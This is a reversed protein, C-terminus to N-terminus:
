NNLIYCAIGCGVICSTSIIGICNVIPTSLCAGLCAVDVPPPLLMCMACLAQPLGPIFCMPVFYTICAAVCQQFDLLGTPDVRNVPDGGVYGHVNFGGKLGIPDESLFRKLVPDYYRARYYYLGTGDNERATYQIPNAGDNGLTTTQGYPTYAYFSQIAQNENALAIVSGLGDTLYTSGGAATYRALVDDVRPTTLLTASVNGGSMEAIAQSRDYVYGTTQGNVTRGVRRNLADYEFNGSVGPGSVETLRNRADWGYTNANGANGQDVKSVINGNNDYALAFTQGTATLTLSTMRNAQDYVASMPTEQASSGGITTRSLRKGNANYTYAISELLTGDSQKYEMLTLRDADDYTLSEVIGNPLARGILRSAPDWAFTTTEGRYIIGTLRHAKDYTYTTPDAGNVTRRVV